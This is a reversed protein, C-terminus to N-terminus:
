KHYLCQHEYKFHEAEQFKFSYKREYSDAEYIQQSDWVDM